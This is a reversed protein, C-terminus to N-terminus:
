AHAHFVEEVAVDLGELVESADGASEDDIVEFCGNEIVVGTLLRVVVWAVEVEGGVVAEGGYGALDAFGVLFAADLAADVVDFGVEDGAVLDVVILAQLGCGFRPAVFYGVLAGMAAGLLDRLFM